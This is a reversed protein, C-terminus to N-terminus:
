VVDSIKDKLKIVYMVMVRTENLYWINNFHLCAFSCVPMVFRNTAKHLKAFSGLSVYRAKDQEEMVCLLRCTKTSLYHSSIRSLETPM